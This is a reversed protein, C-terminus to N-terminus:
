PKGGEAAIAGFYPQKMLPDKPPDMAQCIAVLGLKELERLRKAISYDYIDAGERISRLLARDKASLTPMTKTKSKM